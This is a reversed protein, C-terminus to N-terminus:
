KEEEKDESRQELQQALETESLGQERKEDERAFVMGRSGGYSPASLSKALGKLWKLVRPFASDKVGYRRALAVYDNLQYDKMAAVPTPDNKLAELTARNLGSDSIAAQENKNLAESVYIGLSEPQTVPAVEFARVRFRQWASDLSPAAKAPAQLLAQFQQWEAQVASSSKSIIDEPERSVDGGNAGEFYAALAENLEPAVEDGNDVPYTGQDLNDKM